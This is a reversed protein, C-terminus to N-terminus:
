VRAVNFGARGFATELQAETVTAADYCLAVRKTPLDASIDTVGSLKSLATTITGVCRDCSMSPVSYTIQKTAM